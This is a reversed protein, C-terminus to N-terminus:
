ESEKSEEKTEKKTNKSETEKSTKEDSKSERRLQKDLILDRLKNTLEKNTKLAEAAKAKGVYKQGDILYSKGTLEIIGTLLGYRLVEREVDIQGKEPGDTYFDFEGRRNPPYTKNKVTTFIITQGIVKDTDDPDKIWRKKLDVRISAAHRLGCGGPTTESSGWMVGIKERIQNIFIVLCSNPLKGEGVKMNLASHLKRILRNVMKARTGLQEVDEMATELDKTPVLAAISDVVVLGCEGSRVVADLIDCAAEGSEPKALHLKSVDVGLLKAWEPDFSAEVDIWLVSKGEKQVQAVTKLAIATKGTGERGFLEVLRGYPFGGGLEIDLSLGGTSVRDLDLGAIADGSIITNKGFRSNLDNVIESLDSM